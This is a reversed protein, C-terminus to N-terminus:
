FDAIVLKKMQMMKAFAGPKSLLEEMNEPLIQWSLGYKDKCWGCQESEPVSSLKEWFYDIESQDKCFVALSVAENFTFDHAVGSDMAAFWQGALMFDAFMLSGKKAPGTDDPYRALTGQKSDKFISTYFNIAEEAHDTNKGTFMLAPIIFPRPEGEPNTLILQWTLGYRDKVWGYHKSFPYTDLPMLAEGGEILKGWLEDLHEKAHEDQSPDFNVMFSVSPNFAFEPGANIATFRQKGLEFDVTLVKGALDLQFDALGEEPSNPYHATSNIKSDPFASVYFDVAEKANGDFWLNPIIKQSM